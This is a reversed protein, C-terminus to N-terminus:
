SCEHVIYVIYLCGKNYRAIKQSPLKLRSAHMAQAAAACAAELLSTPNLFISAEGEKDEGPADIGVCKYEHM